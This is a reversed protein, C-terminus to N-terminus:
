INTVKLSMPLWIYIINQRENHCLFGNMNLNHSNNLPMTPWMNLRKGRITVYPAVEYKKPTQYSRCLSSFAKCEEDKEAEQSM